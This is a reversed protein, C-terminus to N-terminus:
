SLYAITTFIVLGLSCKLRTVMIQPITAVQCLYGGGPFDSTTQNARLAFRAPDCRIFKLADTPPPFAPM